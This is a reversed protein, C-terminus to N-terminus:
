HWRVQWHPDDLLRILPGVAPRGISVLAERAHQREAPSAGALAVILGHIDAVGVYEVSNRYESM